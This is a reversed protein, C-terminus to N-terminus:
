IAKDPTSDPSTPLNEPLNGVESDILASLKQAADHKPKHHIYRMTTQLNSHGM